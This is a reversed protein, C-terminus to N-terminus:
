DSLWSRKAVKQAVIAPVRGLDIDEQTIEQSMVGGGPLTFSLLLSGDQNQKIVYGDRLLGVASLLDRKFTADTETGVRRLLAPGMEQVQLVWSQEAAWERVRKSRDDLGRSLIEILLERPMDRSLGLVASLRESPKRSTMLERFADRAAAHARALEALLPCGIERVAQLRCRIAQVIPELDERALSKASRLAKLAELAAFAVRRADGRMRPDSEVHERYSDVDILRPGKEEVPAPELAPEGECSDDWQLTRKLEPQKIVFMAADRRAAERRPHVAGEYAPEGNCAVFARYGGEVSQIHAVYHPIPQKKAM